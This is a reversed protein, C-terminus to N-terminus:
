NTKRQFHRQTVVLWPNEIELGLNEIGFLAFSVMMMSLVSYYGMANMIQFPLALLYLVLVQRLHLGYAHPIQTSLIRDM